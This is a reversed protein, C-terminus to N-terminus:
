DIKLVKKLDESSIERPLSNAPSDTKNAILKYITRTDNDLYAIYHFANTNWVFYYVRNRIPDAKSGIVKNDGAPQTFPVLLNGLITTVTDDSFQGQSDRTINLADSYDGQPLLYPSVDTNLKGNINKQDIPM